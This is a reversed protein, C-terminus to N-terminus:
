MRSQRRLIFVASIIIIAAVLGLIVWFWDGVRSETSEAGVDDVVILTLNYLGEELRVKAAEGYALPDDSGELQWTFNLADEDKDNSGSADLTIEKSDLLEEAAKPSSIIASPPSNIWITSTSSIAENGAGDFARFRIVNDKGTDMFVLFHGIFTGNDEGLVISNWQGFSGEGERGSSFFFQSTNLGSLADHVRVWIEVEVGPQKDEPGPLVEIFEPPTADVYVMFEQSISPGNGALDYGRLQVANERGDSLDVFFTFASDFIVGEMGLKDWEVFEGDTSRYRLEITSLDVGSGGPNDFVHVSCLVSRTTRIDLSGPTFTDFLVPTVDVRVRYHPSATYGNGAIDMARWQIFNRPAEEFLINTSVVVNPADILMGENWDSWVGYLSLNRPSVRYQITSVDIGSGEMDNITVGCNVDKALQWKDPEPLQDTFTVNVTDVRIRIELTGMNSVADYAIWRVYNEEGDPLDQVVHAEIASDEKHFGLGSTTRDGYGDPGQTSVMYSIHDQHIGSMLSDDITVSVEVDHVSQWVDEAPIAHSFTPPDADIRVPFTRNSVEVSSHPLNWLTLTLNEELDTKNDMDMWLTYDAGQIHNTSVHDGDNDTLVVEFPASPPFLDMTGEYVVEPCDVMLRDEGPVWDGRELVGMQDSQASLDGTFALDDEVYFVETAILTGVPMTNIWGEWIVNCFSEHPWSWEFLLRFHLYTTGNEEDIEVDSSNSFLIVNNGPDSLVAFPRWVRLRDWGLSVDAGGPDIHITVNDPLVKTREPNADIRFDYAKLGAFLRPGEEVYVFTLGPIDPKIRMVFGDDRSIEDPYLADETTPFNSSATWGVLVVDQPALVAMDIATDWNDGGIYTCYLVESVNHDLVYLFAEQTGGWDQMLAKETTPLDRSSSFGSLYIYGLDDIMINFAKDPGDGGLYTALLLTSGDPSIKSITIDSKSLQGDHIAGPMIPFDTSYTLTSIYISGDVDLSMKATSDSGSGGLFTSWVLEGLDARLKLIFADYEGNHSVDYAGTTTPFGTSYTAGCLYLSGNEDLVMDSLTDYMDGGIFTHHLLTSGTADLKLVFIDSDTDNPSDKYGWFSVERTFNLFSGSQTTGSVIVDGNKDTIIRNGTDSLNGSILTSFELASGDKALKLAFGDSVGWSTQPDTWLADETTPFDQCETYGSIFTYGEDDVWIDNPEQDYRSGGIYTSWLIETGLADMKTIFIDQHGTLNEKFAGTTTPFDISNTDGAVYISNDADVTVADAMEGLAGGLHTSFVVGPDIVLPFGVDFNEIEFRVVEGRRIEFACAVDLRGRPTNQFAIPAEDRIAGVPTEIVLDGTPGDISLGDVGVYSYQIIDPDIGRDILLDYKLKDGSFYFLLDIGDWLDQYLVKRYCLVDSVWQDPDNGIFFHSRHEFSGMGFPIVMRAGVFEVRVLSGNSPTSPDEIRYTMWGIGFAVSVPSGLAYYHGAGKEMQGQNEMFRGEFTSPVEKLLQDTPIDPIDSGIDQDPRRIGDSTVDPPISILNVLLLGVMLIVWITEPPGMKGM